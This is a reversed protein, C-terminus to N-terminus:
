SLIVIACAAELTRGILLDKETPGFDFGYDAFLFAETRSWCGETDLLLGDGDFVIASVQRPLTM